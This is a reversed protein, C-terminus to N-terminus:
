RSRSTRATGRYRPARCRTPRGRATPGTVTGAIKGLGQASDVNMTVGIPSVGQPTNSTSPSQATYTGPQTVGVDTTAKLTVTVTSPPASRSTSSPRPEGVAVARRDRRVPRARVAEGIGADPQVRRILRRGQLLRMRRPATARSSRTPCRLGAIAAPDYAFGQNTITNFGNTVGSSISSCGTRRSRASGWLDIPLDAIPSWSNSAPDYVNGSKFTSSGSSGGACYVKGNIGGCGQWADGIPYDAASSWTNAPRTTCRSRTPRPATATRAAASSTSRATSSPSARRPRRARTRRRRHDLHEDAPRVGRDRRGADWRLGLRRHRVAQRQGRRRRAERRANAMNAIPAWTNDASSYAYGKNQLTFSTDIGGVSYEKGDIFDAANDMIGTPYDAIQSWTPDKPTGADVGPM